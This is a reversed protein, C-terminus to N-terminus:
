TKSKKKNVCYQTKLDENITIGLKKAAEENIVCHIQTPFEVSMENPDQGNLIKLVMEGTQWGIQYQNPGLAALTGLIITDTDSSYVPIKDKNAIDVIHKIAGLCTNDNSIFIADVKRGLLKSMSENIDTSKAIKQEILTIDLKKCITKLQNVISVSNTEGSNYLIGLRKLNPQIKKFLEIQPKLAIFNSVGGIYPNTKEINRVIKSEKPDTVTSFVLPIKKDKIGKLFSQTSVTGIAVIVDPNKGIMKSAIEIALLHNGQASEVSIKANEKDKYGGKALVDIIGKQTENLAPHDIIKHIMITKIPKQLHAYVDNSINALFFSCILKLIVMLNIM